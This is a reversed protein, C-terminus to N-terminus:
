VCLFTEKQFEPVARLQQAAVWAQGLALGSDGFQTAPQYVEFGLAQLRQTLGERLIHNFFCGGGLCVRQSATLSSAVQVWDILGVILGEHFRAAAEDRQQEVTDL